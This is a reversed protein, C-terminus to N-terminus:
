LPQNALNEKLLFVLCQGPSLPDVTHKLDKLKFFKPFPNIVFYTCTGFSSFPENNNPVYYFCDDCYTFM